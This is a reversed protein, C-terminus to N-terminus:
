PSVMDWGKRNEDIEKIFKRARKNQCREKASVKNTQEKDTNAERKIASIEDRDVCNKREEPPSV